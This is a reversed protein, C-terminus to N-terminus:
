NTQSTEAPARQATQTEHHEKTAPQGPAYIIRTEGGAVAALRGYGALLTDLRDFFSAARRRNATQLSSAAGLM